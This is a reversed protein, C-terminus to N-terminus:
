AERCIIRLAKRKAAKRLSEGIAGLDALRAYELSIAATAYRWDWPNGVLM